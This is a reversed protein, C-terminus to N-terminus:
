AATIKQAKIIREWDQSERVLETRLTAPPLYTPLAGQNNAALVTQPQSLVGRVAESLQDVLAQPMGPPALMHIRPAVSFGPVADSLAPVDEVGPLRNASLMALPRLRGAKAQALGATASVVGLPVQGSVIDPVVQAAGRYPIHLVFTGTQAKVMEFALHQLTGVGPTAYSYHGPRAKIEALFERPTRAAFGNHAVLMMPSVFLGAVPTLEAVPDIRRGVGLHSAILLGSEALLLTHGDPASKSVLDAAIMGSAGARNEVVVQQGLPGSLANALLRAMADVGGGASYGVLIKLPRSPFAQARVAALSVAAVGAALLLRRRRISAPSPTM